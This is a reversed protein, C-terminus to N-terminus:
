PIVAIDRAVAKTWFATCQCHLRKGNSEEMALQYQEGYGDITVLNSISVLGPLLCLSCREEGAVGGTTGGTASEM